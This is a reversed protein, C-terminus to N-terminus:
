RLQRGEHEVSAAEVSAAKRRQREAPKRRQREFARKRFADEEKRSADECGRGQSIRRRLTVDNTQGINNTGARMTPAQRANQQETTADFQVISSSYSRVVTRDFFRSSYANFFQACRVVQPGYADFQSSIADILLDINDSHQRQRL